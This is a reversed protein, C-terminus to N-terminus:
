FATPLIDTPREFKVGQPTPIPTPLPRLFPAGGDDIEWRLLMANDEHTTNHCHEMFMGGFDRFQMTITVSGGPRLRYVDKRGREWAPVNAASGNRALVLGEEFHVHIPHDWGGGGNQLTWIERTGFRPAASIRGFDAALTGGQGDTEIGWPGFFTTVPDNTTQGAGSNFEFVRQRAVPVALINPNPILTGPVQSADPVPPDRVIRFELFKGVCPDPSTGSLAQALTLDNAPLKGGEHETLNVMWVKDGIRYRTFDIVIDLALRSGDIGEIRRIETCREADPPPADAPTAPDPVAPCRGEGLGVAIWIGRRLGRTHSVDVAAEGPGAPRALVRESSRYPEAHQSFSFGAAIGQSAQPDSKVFHTYVDPRLHARHGEGEEGDDVYLADVCDFVKSLLVDAQRPPTPLRVRAAALAFPSAVASFMRREPTRDGGLLEGDVAGVSYVRRLRHGERVLGLTPCVGDRRSPTAWEGLWPAPTHGAGPFPPRQGLHPRLLPWAYRGNVPDFAIPEREGDPGPEALYLPGEPGDVRMWDWM